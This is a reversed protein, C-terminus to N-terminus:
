GQPTSIKSIEAKETASTSINQQFQQPVNGATATNKQWDNNPHTALHRALSSCM